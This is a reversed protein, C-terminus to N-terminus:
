VGMTYPIDDFKITEISVLENNSNFKLQILEPANLPRDVVIKDNFKLVLDDKSIEHLKCFKLLYFTIAYGHSFVAIKKGKYRFLIEDIVESVRNRVNVQSEGGVTSFNEDYFQRTYWDPYVDDNPKGIRREDLRSDINVHLNQNEMLYKATQLTRVCGSAYVVDTNQMENKKSLLEARREGEGSLIIKEERVLRSDGSLYSDIESKKMRVSHRILNITTFEEHRDM